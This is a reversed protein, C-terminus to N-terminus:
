HFLGSSGRLDLNQDADQRGDREQEEEEEDDDQGVTPSLLKQVRRRRPRRKRNLDIHLYFFINM